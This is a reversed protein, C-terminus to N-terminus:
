GAATEAHDPLCVQPVHTWLHPHHRLPVPLRLLRACPLLVAVAHLQDPVLEFLHKIPALAFGGNRLGELLLDQERFSDSILCFIYCVRLYINPILSSTGTTIKFISSKRSFFARIRIWVWSFHSLSYVVLLSININRQNTEITIGM